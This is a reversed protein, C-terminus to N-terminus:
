KAWQDGGPAAEDLTGERREGLLPWVLQEDAAQVVFSQPNTLAFLPEGEPRGAAPDELSEDAPNTGDWAERVYVLVRTGAPMIESYTQPDGPAPPGLEVYFSHREDGTIVLPDVLEIVVTTATQDDTGTIVLKRGPSFASVTAEVVHASAQALADPSEFPDYDVALGAFAELITAAAPDRRVATTGAPPDSDGGAQPSTCGVAVAGILSLSIAGAAVRRRLTM